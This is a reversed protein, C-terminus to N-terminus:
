ISVEIEFWQELTRTWGQCKMSIDPFQSSPWIALIGSFILFTTFLPTTTASCSAEFPRVTPDRPASSARRAIRPGGDNHSDEAHWGEELWPPPPLPFPRGVKQFGREKAKVILSESECDWNLKGLGNESILLFDFLSHSIVSFQFSEVNKLFIKTKLFPKVKNKTLELENETNQM